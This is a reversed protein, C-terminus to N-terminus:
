KAQFHKDHRQKEDFRAVGADELEKCSPVRDEFHEAVYKTREESAEDKILAGSKPCQKFIRSDKPIPALDHADLAGFDPGVDKWMGCGDKSLKVRLKGSADKVSFSSDSADISGGPYKNSYHPIWSKM